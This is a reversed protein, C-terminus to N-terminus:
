QLLQINKEKIILHVDCVAIGSSGYAYFYKM